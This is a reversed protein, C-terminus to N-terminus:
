GVDDPVVVGPQPAVPASDQAALSKLMGLSAVVVVAAVVLKTIGQHSRQLAASPEHPAHGSLTALEATTRQAPSRSGALETSLFRHIAGVEPPNLAVPLTTLWQDLQALGVLVVGPPVTVPEIPQQIFCVATTVSARHRPELLATVAAAAWCSAELVKDRRYGNQRPVGDRVTVAGSWNKADLVVVGGPGVAIHDINARPRGPWRVDHLVRWGATALNELAAGLAREGEAGAEWNARWQRLGDIQGQLQAEKLAARRAVEDAGAGARGVTSM